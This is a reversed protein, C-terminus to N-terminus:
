AAEKVVNAMTVIGWIWAAVMIPIGVFVLCLPIGVVYMILQIIGNTQHKKSSIIAWLGPFVGLITLVLGVIALSKDPKKAM